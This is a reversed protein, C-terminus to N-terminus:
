VELFFYNEFILEFDNRSIFLVTSKLKFEWLDTQDILIDQKIRLM